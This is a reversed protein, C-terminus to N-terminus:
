AEAAAKAARTGALFGGITHDLHSAESAIDAAIQKALAQNQGDALQKAYSSINNLSQRLELAMEASIEGRLEQHRRILAMETKDNILCAAGLINRDPAHVPTMTVELFRQEGAPTVYQVHLMWSATKEHLSAQIAEVANKYNDFGEILAAERFTDGTAMGVPSAFGLIHKAANNAQRVLGNATFFLIGSSLNSLIAASINESTKARWRESQQLSELEHKQQKLQQIVASYTHLPLTESSSSSSNRSFASEGVLSKRMRKIAVLGVLFAFAAAVLVVTMRVIIPNSLLKM